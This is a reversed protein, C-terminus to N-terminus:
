ICVSDLKNATCVEEIEPCRLAYTKHANLGIKVSNKDSKKKPRPELRQVAPTSHTLNSFMPHFVAAVNDNASLPTDCDVTNNVNKKLPHFVAAVNDTARLPKHVM